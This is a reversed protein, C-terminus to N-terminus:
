ADLRFRRHDDTTRDVFEVQHALHQSRAAAAEADRARIKQQLRGTLQMSKEERQLLLFAQEEHQYDRKAELYARMDFFSAALLVLFTVICCLAALRRCRLRRGQVASGWLRLGDEQLVSKAAAIAPM